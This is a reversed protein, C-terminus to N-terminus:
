MLIHVKWSPNQELVFGLVQKANTADKTNITFAPGKKTKLKEM